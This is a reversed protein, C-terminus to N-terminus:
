SATEGYAGSFAEATRANGAEGLERQREKPILDDVLPFLTREEQELHEELVSAFDSTAVLRRLRAEPAQLAELLEGIHHHVTEHEKDFYDIIEPSVPKEAKALAPFLIDHEVEEHAALLPLLKRLARDLREHGGTGQDKLSERMERLTRRFSEHQRYLLETITM